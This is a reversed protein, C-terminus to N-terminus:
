CNVSNPILDSILSFGTLDNKRAEEKIEQGSIAYAIQRITKRIELKSTLHYTNWMLTSYVGPFRNLLTTSSIVFLVPLKSEFHAADSSYWDGYRM